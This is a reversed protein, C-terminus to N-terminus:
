VPLCAWAAFSISRLFLRDAFAMGNRLRRCLFRAAKDGCGHRLVCPVAGGRRAHLLRNRCLLRAGDLYRHILLLEHTDPGDHNRRALDALHDPGGAAHLVILAVKKAGRSNHNPSRREVPRM